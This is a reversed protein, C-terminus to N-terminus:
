PVPSCVHRVLGGDLLEPAAAAFRQFHGTDQHAAVADTDAYVEYLYFRDPDDQDQVVDFRLCGPEDRVSHEADDRVAAIFRERAGPRVHAEVLLVQM